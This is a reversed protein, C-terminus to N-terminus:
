ALTVLKAQKVPKAVYTRKIHDIASDENDFEAMYKTSLFRQAGDAENFTRTVGHEVWSQMPSVLWMGTDTEYMLVFGDLEKVYGRFVDEQMGYGDFMRMKHKKSNVKKALIRIDGLHIMDGFLITGKRDSKTYIPIKKM